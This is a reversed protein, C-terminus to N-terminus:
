NKVLKMYKFNYGGGYVKIIYTGTKLNTVDIREQPSNEFHHLQVLQGNLSFIQVSWQAQLSKSLQINTFNTAPNPFMKVEHSYIQEDSTSDVKIPTKLDDENEEFNQITNEIVYGNWMEFVKEMLGVFELRKEYGLIDSEPGLNQRGRLVAKEMIAKDRYQSERLCLGFEIVSSAFKFDSSSAEDNGEIPQSLLTSVDENPNKYRFDIKGLSGKRGEKRKVQYFAIVNHDYGLDGADVSDNNFQWNELVRNEYGILRYEEVENQDFTLQLKVDKAITFMTGAFESDFLRKAEKEQDIYGYNGNGNDALQEMMADNLNRMGFGLVSLFIGTKKKEEIYKVLKDKNTIGVNWDGDSAVIVRNNGGEILNESAIEYAKQIGQSGSTSGSAILKDVANKIKDKKDGTTPQLIVKSDSAYTVISIKDIARLSEVLHHISKKVLPLKNSSKMSGSVDILFVINSAPLETKPVEKAKLRIMVLEDEPNWPCPNIETTIKLPHEDEATPAKLEYNFFNLWEEIRIADKPPLQNQTVFRRFNTYSGNDVDIGFTSQVEDSTKVWENEEYSEYREYQAAIYPIRRISEKPYYIVQDTLSISDSGPYKISLNRINAQREFHYPIVRKTPIHEKVYIGDMVGSGIGNGSGESNNGFSFQAQGDNYYYITGASNASGGEYYKRIQKRKSYTGNEQIIGTDYYKAYKGNPRNNKYEGVLRIVDCKKHYKVWIGEKRNNVYTGQEIKCSDGYGKEPKMYGYIIWHGQKQGNVDKQNISDIAVNDYLAVIKIFSHANSSDDLSVIEHQSISISRKTKINFATVSYVVVLMLVSKIVLPQTKM